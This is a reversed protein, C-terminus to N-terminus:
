SFLIWPAKRPTVRKAHTNLVTKALELAAMETPSVTQSQAVVVVFM